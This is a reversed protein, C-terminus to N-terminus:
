FKKQPHKERFKEVAYFTDTHPTKRTRMKGCEFKICLSVVYRETNLEFAPFASWFFESYPCKVRLTRAM